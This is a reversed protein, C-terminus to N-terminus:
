KKFVDLQIQITIDLAKRYSNRNTNFVIFDENSLGLIERCEKKDLPTFCEDIGHPLISIKDAIINMDVLNKKWHESFVIIKDVNSDIFSIYNTREYDYVLDLYTVIKFSREVDKIHNLLNCTVIVDNYIFFLDPSVKEITDKITLYGYPDNNNELFVDIIKVNSNILRSTPNNQNYNTIAYYYIDHGQEALFNVLKHAVRAYGIPQSYHTAYFLIKM